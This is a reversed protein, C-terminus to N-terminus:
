DDKRSPGTNEFREVTLEAGEAQKGRDIPTPTNKLTALKQDLLSVPEAEEVM